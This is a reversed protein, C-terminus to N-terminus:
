PWVPRFIASKSGFQVNRSQSKLKFKGSAKFHHVFSLMVYFLHGKTKWPWWDFKLTVHSLFNDMKIWISCRRVTVVTQTWRHLHFSACGQHLISSTGYKKELDAMLNWPWMSQLILLKLGIETLNNPWDCSDFGESKGEKLCFLWHLTHRSWVIFIHLKLVKTGIAPIEPISFYTCRVTNQPICNNILTQSIQKQRWHEWIMIRQGFARYLLLLGILQIGLLAFTTVSLVQARVDCSLGRKVEAWIAFQWGTCWKIAVETTIKMKIFIAHGNALDFPYICFTHNTTIM